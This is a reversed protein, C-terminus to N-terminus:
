RMMSSLLRSAKFQGGITWNLATLIGHVMASNTIAAGHLTSYGAAARALTARQASNPGGGDTIALAAPVRAEGLLASATVMYARWEDNNPM